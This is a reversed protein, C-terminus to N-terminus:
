RQNMSWILRLGQLALDAHVEFDLRSAAVVIDAFRGTAVLATEYGLEDWIAEVLGDLRAAEGFVTGSQIADATTRGIVRKPIRMGVETLQAASDSLADLSVRLGPAIAGGLFAGDDGVVSLSTATDFAAVIVPAGVLEKAAVVYAVRDAGMQGPDKYGMRMGNKVGPGVVLPTRGVVESLAETWAGTLAPVVSCLISSEPTPLDRAALFTRAIWELENPTSPSRTTASWTGLLADGSFLGLQTEANSVEVALLTGRVEAGDM